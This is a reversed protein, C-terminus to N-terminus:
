EDSDSDTLALTQRGYSATTGFEVLASLGQHFHPIRYQAVLPHSTASSLTVPPTSNGAGCGLSVLTLLIVASSCLTGRSIPV